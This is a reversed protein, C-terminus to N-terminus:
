WCGAHLAGVRTAGGSCATACLVLVMAANRCRELGNM